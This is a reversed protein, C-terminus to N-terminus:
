YSGMRNVEDSTGLDHVRLAASFMYDHEGLKLSESPDYKLGGYVQFGKKGLLGLSLSIFFPFFVRLRVGVLDITFLHFPPLPLFFHFGVNNPHRLM